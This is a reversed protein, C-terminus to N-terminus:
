VDCGPSTLLMVYINTPSALPITVYGFVIYPYLEITSISCSLRRISAPTPPSSSDSSTTLEQLALSIHARVVEERETAALLKLERYVDRLESQLVTVADRGLGQLTLTLVLVAAARVEAATDRSCCSLHQLVEGTIPGLSFRLNKCVEGSVCM